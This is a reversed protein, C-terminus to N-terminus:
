AGDPPLLATIRAAAADANLVHERLEAVTAPRQGSVIEILAGIAGAMDRTFGFPQGHLCLAALAHCDRAPIGVGEAGIEDVVSVHSGPTAFIGVRGSRNMSHAEWEGPTLAPTITEDSM